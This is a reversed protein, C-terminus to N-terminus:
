CLPLVWLGVFDFIIAAALLASTMMGWLALFRSRGEGTEVEADVPLVRPAERWNRYSLLAALVCIAIAILDIAITVPWLWGLGAPGHLTLGPFCYHSTFGYNLLLHLSWAVPAALLALLLPTKGVQRPPPGQRAITIVNTTDTMDTM